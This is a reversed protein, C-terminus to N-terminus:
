HSCAGWKACRVRLGTLTLQGRRQVLRHNKNHTETRHSAIKLVLQQELVAAFLWLSLMILPVSVVMQFVTLPFIFPTIGALFFLTIGVCRNIALLFTLGNM